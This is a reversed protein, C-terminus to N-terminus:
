TSTTHTQKNPPRTKGKYPTTQRKHTQKSSSNQNNQQNTLTEKTQKRTANTTKQKNTQHTPNNYKTTTVHQQPTSAIHVTRAQPETDKQPATKKM